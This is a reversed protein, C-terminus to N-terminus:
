QIVDCFFRINWKFRTIAVADFWVNENFYWRWVHEFVQFRYIRYFVYVHSMRLVYCCLQGSVDSHLKPLRILVIVKSIPISPSCSSLKLTFKTSNPAGIFLTLSLSLSLNPSLWPFPSVSFCLNNLSSFLCFHSILLFFISPSCVCAEQPLSFFFFQLFSFHVVIPM